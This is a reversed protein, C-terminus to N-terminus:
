PQMFLLRPIQVSLFMFNPGIDSTPSWLCYCPPQHHRCTLLRQLHSSSQGAAIADLVHLNFPRHRRCHFRLWGPRSPSQRNTPKIETCNMTPWSTCMCHERRDGRRVPQLLQAAYVIVQSISAICIYVQYWYNKVFHVKQGLLISFCVGTRIIYLIICLCFLSFLQTTPKLCWFEMQHCITWRIEIDLVPSQQKRFKLLYHKCVPPKM